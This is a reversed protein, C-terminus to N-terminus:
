QPDRWPHPDIDIWGKLDEAVSHKWGESQAREETTALRRAEHAPDKAIRVRLGSDHPTLFQMAFDNPSDGAVLFPKAEASHFLRFGEVKGEQWTLPGCREATVETEPNRMLAELRDSADATQRRLAITDIKEGKLALAYNVGLGRHLPILDTLNLAMLAAHILVEPSASIVWADVDHAKLWTLLQRQAEYFKPRPYSLENLDTRTKDFLLVTEQLIDCTKHGGYVDCAWEFAIHVGEAAYLRQYYAVMSEEPEAQLKPHTTFHFADQRRVVEMLAYHAEVIDGHWLTEDADFLACAKGFERKFSELRRSILAEFGQPWLSLSVSM